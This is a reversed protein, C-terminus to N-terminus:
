SHNNKRNEQSNFNKNIKIIHDNNNVSDVDM